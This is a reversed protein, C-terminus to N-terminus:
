LVNCNSIADRHGRPEERTTQVTIIDSVIDDHAAAPLAFCVM